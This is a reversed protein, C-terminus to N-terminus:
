EGIRRDARGWDMEGGGGVKFEPPVPADQAGTPDRKLAPHLHLLSLLHPAM